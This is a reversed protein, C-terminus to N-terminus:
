QVRRGFVLFHNASVSIPILGNSDFTSKSVRKSFELIFSIQFAIFLGALCLM